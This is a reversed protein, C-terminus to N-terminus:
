CIAAVGTMGFKNRSGHRESPLLKGQRMPASVLEAHCSRLEYSKDRSEIKRM